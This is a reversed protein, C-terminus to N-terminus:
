QCLAVAALADKTTHYSGNDNLTLAAVGKTLPRGGDFQPNPVEYTLDPLTSLATAPVKLPCFQNLAANVAIYLVPMASMYQLAALSLLQDNNFIYLGGLHDAVASSGNVLTAPSNFQRLQELGHLSTLATNSVISLSGTSQLAALGGLDPLKTGMLTIKEKVATLSGLNLSALQPCNWIYLRGNIQTLAKFSASNM